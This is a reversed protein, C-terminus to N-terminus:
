YGTTSNSNGLSIRQLEKALPEINLQHRCEIESFSNKKESCLDTMKNDLEIYANIAESNKRNILMAWLVDQVKANRTICNKSEVKLFAGVLDTSKSDEVESCTELLTSVIQVDDQAYANLNCFTLAFFLVFLSKM